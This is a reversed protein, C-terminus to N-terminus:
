QGRTLENVLTRVLDFRARGTTARIAAILPRYPAIDEASLAATPAVAIATVYVNIAVIIVIVVTIPPPPPPPPPAAARVELMVPRTEEGPQIFRYLETSPHILAAREQDTLDYGQIAREPDAILQAHFDADFLARLLVNRADTTSM